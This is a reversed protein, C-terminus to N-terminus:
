NKGRLVSEAYKRTGPSLPPGIKKLSLIKKKASTKRVFQHVVIQIVHGIKSLITCILRICKTYEFQILDIQVLNNLEDKAEDTENAVSAKNTVKTVDAKAKDVEFAENAEHAVNAV